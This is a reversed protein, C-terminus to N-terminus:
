VIGLGGGGQGGKWWVWLMDNNICFHYGGGVFFTFFFRSMGEWHEFAQAVRVPAGKKFFPEGAYTLWVDAYTLM